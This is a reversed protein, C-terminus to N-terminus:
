TVFLIKNVSFASLGMEDNKRGDKKKEKCFVLLEKFFVAFRYMHYM